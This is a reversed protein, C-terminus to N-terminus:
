DYFGRKYRKKITLCNYFSSLLRAILGNDSIKTTFRVKSFVFEKDLRTM